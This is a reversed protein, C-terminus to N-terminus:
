GWLTRVVEERTMNVHDAVDKIIGSLTGIKLEHHRPITVHHEDRRSLRVHSGTQRVVEYGLRALLKSLEEGSVDRPIRM